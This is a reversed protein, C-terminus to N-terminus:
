FFFFSFLLEQYSKWTLNISFTLLGILFFSKSRYNCEESMSFINKFLVTDLIGHAQMYFWLCYILSSFHCEVPIFPVNFIVSKKNSKENKIWGKGWFKKFHMNCLIPRHIIKNLINIILYLVANLHLWSYCISACHWWFAHIWIAAADPYLSEYWLYHMHLARAIYKPM